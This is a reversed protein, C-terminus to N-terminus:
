IDVKTKLRARENFRQLADKILWDLVETLSMGSAELLKPYMSVDTFGPITNLENIILRQDQTFFFDVRAMGECYTSVFAQCAMQQVREVVEDPLDAPIKLLAGHENLYKTDYSYFKENDLVVIEGPVSAIPAETGLVACELERGIIFEECIIKTDYYFAEEVASDFDERFEVKSVGVSSGLNAPKVFFPCGLKDTVADFSLYDRRSNCFAIYNAIPFGAQLLLRKMVDKDMNVASGLVNSGVLAVNALRALGQISGDEGDPGHMVPFIVDIPTKDSERTLPILNASTEDRVITVYENDLKEESNSAIEAGLKPMVDGLKNNLYRQASVTSLLRGQRDLVLLHTEYKNQDLANIINRASTLSVEHEASKGGCVVAVRIKQKSM